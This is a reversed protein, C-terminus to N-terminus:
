RALPGRNMWFIHADQPPTPPPSLGFVSFPTHALSAGAFCAQVQQASVPLAEGVSPVEKPSPPLFPAGSDLLQEGRPFCIVQNQDTLLMLFFTTRGTRHSRISSLNSAWIGPPQMSSPQACIGSSAKPNQKGEGGSLASYGWFPWRMM